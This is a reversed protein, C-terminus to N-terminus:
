REAWLLPIDADCAALIDRAIVLSVHPPHESRSTCHGTDERPEDLRVSAHRPSPCRLPRLSAHSSFERVSECSTASGAPDLRDVRSQIGKEPRRSIDTSSASSRLNIANNFGFAVFADRRPKAVKRSSRPNHSQLIISVKLWKFGVGPM